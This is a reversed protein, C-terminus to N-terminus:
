SFETKYLNGSLFFIDKEEKSINCKEAAHQLIKQLKPEDDRWSADSENAEDPMLLIYESPQNNLDLRYWKNILNLKDHDVIEIIQEFLEKSIKSPLSRAGYRNGVFCVFNPGCSIRKCNRIENLCLEETINQKTLQKTVGWRMDVWQFDLDISACHAKLRPFSYSYLINREHKFDSFTSSLFIKVITTRDDATHSLQGLLIEYDDQFLKIDSGNLSIEIPQILKQTLIIPLKAFLSFDSKTKFSYNNM